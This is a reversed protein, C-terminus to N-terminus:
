EGFVRLEAVSWHAHADSGTQRLRLWRAHIGALEFTLPIMAPDDLAGAVAHSATRGSWVTNWARGDGSAEIALSRPYDHLREGLSMVLADVGHPAGLDITLWETGCQPAGSEWFSRRDGDALVAPDLRGSSVAVSQIPLAVGRRISAVAKTTRMGLRRGDADLIALPRGAAIPDLADADGAELAEKLITYHVPEFGSYGDVLPLGHYMSRYMAATDGFVTGLPLEVVADGRPVDLTV